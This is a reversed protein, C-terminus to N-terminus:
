LMNGGDLITQKGRYHCFTDPEYNTSTKFGQQELARGMTHAIRRVTPHVSLGSRLEAVYVMSDLPFEADTVVDFGLPLALQADVIENFDPHKGTSFERFLRENYVVGTAEIANAVDQCLTESISSLQTLYWDNFGLYPTLVTNQIDARRHRQLDRWSGFDLTGYLRYRLGIAMKPEISSPMQRGTKNRSNVEVVQMETPTSSPEIKAGNSKFSRWKLCTLNHQQADLTSVPRGNYTAGTISFLHDLSEQGYFVNPLYHELWARRDETLWVNFTTPYRERLHSDVVRAVDRVEKLPHFTLQKVHTNLTRLNMTISLNTNAGAPLLGRMIDFARAHVSRLWVSHSLEPFDSHPYKIEMATKVSDINNNYLDIWLRQLKALEEDDPKTYDVTSFDLFRSSCEKGNYLMHDQFAKACLMSVGEIFVPTSADDAVSEHGYGVFVTKLRERIEDAVGTGKTLTETLDALHAQICALPTEPDLHELSKLVANFDLDEAALRNFREQISTTSRSYFAQLMAVLEPEGSLSRPLIYVKM